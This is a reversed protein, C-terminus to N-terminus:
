LDLEVERTLVHTTNRDLDAWRFNDLNLGPAVYGRVELHLRQLSPLMAGLPLSVGDAGGALWIRRLITGDAERLRLEFVGEGAAPGSSTDWGFSPRGPTSQDIALWAPPPRLESFLLAEDLDAAPRRVRQESRAVEFGFTREFSAVLTVQLLDPPAVVLLPASEGTGFSARSSDEITARTRDLGGPLDGFVGAHVFASVSLNGGVLDVLESEVRGSVSWIPEISLSARLSPEPVDKVSVFAFHSTTEDEDIRLGMSSPAGTPLM